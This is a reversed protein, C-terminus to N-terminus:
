EVRFKSLFHTGDVTAWFSGDDRSITYNLYEEPMEVSYVLAPNARAL